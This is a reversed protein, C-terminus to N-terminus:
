NKPKILRVYVGYNQNDNDIIQKSLYIENPNSQDIEFVYLSNKMDVDAKNNLCLFTASTKGFWEYDPVNVRFSLPLLNWGFLDVGPKAWKLGTASSSTIMQTISSKYRLLGQKLKAVDLSDPIQWGIDNNKLEKRLRKIAPINLLVGNKKDSDDPHYCFAPEGHEYADNWDELRSAEKINPLLCRVDKESLNDRSWCQDFIYTHARMDYYQEILDVDSLQGELTKIQNKLSSIDGNREKIVNEKARIQQAAKDKESAISDELTKVYERLKEKNFKDIEVEQSQGIFSCILFLFLSSVRLLM